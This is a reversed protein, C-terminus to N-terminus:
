GKLDNAHRPSCSLWLWVPTGEQVRRQENAQGQGESWADARVAFIGDLSFVSGPTELQSGGKRRSYAYLWFQMENHYGM